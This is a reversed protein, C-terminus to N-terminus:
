GHTHQYIITWIDENSSQAKKGNDKVKTQKKKIGQPIFNPQRNSAM